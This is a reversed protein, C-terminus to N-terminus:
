KIFGTLASNLSQIEFETMGSTDYTPNSISLLSNDPMSDITSWQETAIGVTRMYEAKDFTEFLNPRWWFIIPKLPLHLFTTSDSGAHTPVSTKLSGIQNAQQSISQGLQAINSVGKGISALGAGAAALNIAQDGILPGINSIIGGLLSGGTIGATAAGAAIAESIAPAVAGVGLATLVVGAGIAISNQIM